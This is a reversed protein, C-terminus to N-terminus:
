PQVEYFPIPPLKIRSFAFRPQVAKWLHKVGHDGMLARKVVFAVFDAMILPHAVRKPQFNPDEHIHKLPFYEREADLELATKPDQHQRQMDRIFRRTDNNDEVVIFCNEGKANQRFWQDIEILCATYTMGVVHCLIDVPKTLEFARKIEPIREKSLLGYTVQLNLKAPLSALDELLAMRKSQDKWEPKRGKDFDKSGSYIDGSHLVITSRDKAPVHDEMIRALEARLKNLQHDGHVIVGGVVIFPGDKDGGTGAEDLYVIRVTNDGALQGFVPASM